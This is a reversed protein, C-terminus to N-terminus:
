CCRGYDYLLNEEQNRKRKGGERERGTSKRRRKMREREGECEHVCACMSVYRHKRGEGMPRHSETQGQVM